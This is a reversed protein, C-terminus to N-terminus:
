RGCNEELLTKAIVSGQEAGAKWAACGERGRGQQFLVNGLNVQVGAFGPDAALAKRFLGEATVFNGAKGAAVGDRNYQQALRAQPLLQNNRVTRQLEKMGRVAEMNGPNLRVATQFDRQAGNYDARDLKIQARLLYDDDGSMWNYGLLTNLDALAEEDMGRRRYILARTHLAQPFKRFIQLSRNAYALAEDDKGQLYLESALIAHAHASKPNTEIARLAFRSPNRYSESFYLNCGALYLLLLVAFWQFYKKRDLEFSQVLNLSLVLLGFGAIYARHDVHEYTFAYFPPFYLMGPVMFLLPWAAFFAVRRGNGCRFFYLSVLVSIIVLGAVTATITYAPLTSMNVPFYFKAVTEPITRINKLFSAVGVDGAFLIVSRSKLTFYAVHVVLYFLPLLLHKRTLSITKGHTWLYLGLVVPLVVASEKSFVALAFFLCHFLYYYWRGGNMLKIFTAVSLFVFLSLLLDGRAPLWAVATMFLYHTAYILAGFFALKERFELLRLLRFVVCCALLHLIINTLHATFIPNPGWQADIIYTASQLPRYLDISKELYFADLTFVKFLNPLHQLFGINNAILVDDDSNSIGYFLCKVYVAACVAALLLYRRMDGDKRMPLDAM